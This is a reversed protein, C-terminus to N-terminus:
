EGLAYGRFRRVLTCYSVNNSRLIETCTCFSFNLAPDTGLGFPPQTTHSSSETNAALVAPALCLRQTPPQERALLHNHRIHMNVAILIDLTFSLALARIQRKEVRIM